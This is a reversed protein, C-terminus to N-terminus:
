SRSRRRIPQPKRVGSATDEVWERTIVSLFEDFTTLAYGGLSHSLGPVLVGNSLKQPLLLVPQRRDRQHLIIWSLSDANDCSLKAQRIWAPYSANANDPGSDVLDLPSLRNYGRKLEFTWLKLLPNGIPDLATIDGYSGYTSKGQRSRVTARGGSQSSRWFVDDRKGNTWWLGLQKCIKREFESGKM